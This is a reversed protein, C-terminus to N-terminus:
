LGQAVSPLAAAAQAVFPGHAPRGAALGGHQSDRGPHGPPTAPSATARRDGGPQQWQHQPGLLVALPPRPRSHGYGPDEAAGGPCGWWWSIGP